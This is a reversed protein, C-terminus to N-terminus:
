ISSISKMKLIAGDSVSNPLLMVSATLCDRPLCVIAAMHPWYRRCLLSLVELWVCSLMPQWWLTNVHTQNNNHTFVVLYEKLFYWLYDVEELNRMLREMWDMTGDGDRLIQEPNAEYTQSSLNAHSSSDTQFESESHPQCPPWLRVRLERGHGWKRRLPPVQEQECRCHDPHM